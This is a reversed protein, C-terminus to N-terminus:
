TAEFSYRAATFSTKSDFHVAMNYHFESYLSNNTTKAYEYADVSVVKKYHGMAFAILEVEKAKFAANVLSNLDGLTLATSIAVPMLEATLTCLVSIFTSTAITAVVQPFNITKGVFKYRTAKFGAPTYFEGSDTVAPKAAYFRRYIGARLINDTPETPGMGDVTVEGGNLIIRGDTTYVLEDHKNGDTINLVINGEENEEVTIYETTWEYPIKYTVNGNQAVESIEVFGSLAAKELLEQDHAVTKVLETSVQAQGLDEAIMEQADAMREVTEVSAASAGVSLISILMATTLLVSIAKKM